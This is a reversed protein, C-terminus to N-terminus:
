ARLVEDTILTIQKGEVEFGLGISEALKKLGKMTKPPEPSRVFAGVLEGKSTKNFHNMARRVGDKDTVVEVWYSDMEEPIPALEVYSKSRLDIIPGDVLRVWAAPQHEQWIQKLDLGPVRTDASLRYYPIRDTASILGFLSSQMLVHKRMMEIEHSTFDATKIAKYLTGSYRLYAPMTPADPIELNRGVDELQKKGLKLVRVAEDPDGSLKILADLVLDRAVNLQGYSLHVQQITLSSGGLVKTESPPLLLLV